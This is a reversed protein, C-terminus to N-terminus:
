SLGVPNKGVVYAHIIKQLSMVWLIKLYHILAVVVTSWKIYVLPRATHFFSHMDSIPYPYKFIPFM